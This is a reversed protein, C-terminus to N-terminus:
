SCLKYSSSFYAISLSADDQPRNNDKNLSLFILLLHSTTGQHLHQTSLQVAAMLILNQNYTSDNYSPQNLREFIITFLVAVKM